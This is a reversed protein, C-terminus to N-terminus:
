RATGAVVILLYHRIQVKAQPQLLRGTSSRRSGEAASPQKDNTEGFVHEARARRPRDTGAGRPLVAVVPRDRQELRGWAANVM